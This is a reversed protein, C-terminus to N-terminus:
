DVVVTTRLLREGARAQLYHTGTTWGSADLAQEGGPREGRWVERGAADHVTLTWAPADPLRLWLRDRVPVPWAALGEASPGGLGSPPPPPPGALLDAVDVRYMSRAHTAAVLVGAASDLELDYVAVTPMGAALLFWSVGADTSAYVGGDTGVFLVSDNRPSVELDNIALPPLDGAVPSWSAGRDPSTFVHPTNDNDKYGSLTVWVRDPDLFSAEVDTVYRDPLWGADVRQWSGGGDDTRSVVGDSSGTYILGPVIPSEGITTLNHYRPEILVGKTLDGSIPTWNDGATTTPSRHLRFTGAYADHPPHVSVIYPMDWNRRDSFPLSSSFDDFPMGTGPSRVINGNQWEAFAVGPAAPHFDAHFGDGGFRYTWPAAAGSGSTTGNDQAGGWVEGPVHPNLTARYFQTNPIDDVRQWTGGNDQTRYLGGDTALLLDGPGLWALDHKDAHVFSGETPSSWFTGTNRWLQVGCVYVRGATHPDFRAKAFYWGFGGLASASSLGSVNRPTWSDGGDFSEYLGETEFDTGIFQALIHDPDAPDQDLGIRCQWGTAVGSLETWSAGGNETRHIRAGPGYVISYRNTRLRDWGAAWVRDPDTPDILLDCAGTSDSLYLVQTWNAGGDTSRYVGRDPTKAMPLGQAAVYILDPDLPHVRVRSIIRTDELGLRTWTAGGDTSRWLGDGIFPYGSVNPDGTGVYVTEPDTPDLEIDGIALYPQDDFVPVWSAGADTTKFVGGSACGVYWVDPDTPHVAITNIRGGVNTPGFAEWARDDARANARLARDGAAQRLAADYAVLDVADDPWARMAHWHDAPAHKAALADAAPPPGEASPGPRGPHAARPVLLLAGATALVAAAPLILRRM